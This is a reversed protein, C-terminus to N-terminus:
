PPKVARCVLASWDFDIRGPGPAIHFAERVAPPAQHFDRELAAVTQPPTNSRRVWDHFELPVRTTAAHTVQFGGGEFLALLQSPKWDRVHSPDRRREVDHMWAAVADDEPSTVDCFLLVGGPRLVRWAERLAAELDAFHHAAMRTAVCDLSASAFPLAEAQALAYELHALGRERALRRAEALMPATLDTVVVRRAYPALAFATFGAGAGVDVVSELPLPAGGSPRGLAAFETLVDLTEGGRFPVGEAYRRAQRGFQQQARRAAGADRQAM